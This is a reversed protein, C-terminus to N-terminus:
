KKSISPSITFYDEIMKAKQLDKERGFFHFIRHQEKLTPVRFSCAGLPITKYEEVMLPIWQGKKCVQLDGMVEIDIEDFDYRSFNSRFLDSGVPKFNERKRDHWLKKLIEADTDSVLLDIDSSKEIPLGALIM